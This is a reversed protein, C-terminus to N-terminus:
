LQGGRTRQESAPEQGFQLSGVRRPDLWIWLLASVLLAGSSSGFAVSWGFRKLLLPVVITSIIGGINGATNMTAGAAGANTEGVAISRSWFIAEVSWLSAVSLSIAAIAIYPSDVRVGVFLFTASAMMLGIAFNRRGHRYGKKITLRDSASGVLITAFIAVFFPLGAFLGGRLIAFHRQDVLYLFSWFVFVYVAYSEFLYSV